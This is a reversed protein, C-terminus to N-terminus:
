RSITFEWWDIVSGIRIVCMDLLTTSYTQSNYIYVCFMISSPVGLIPDEPAQVLHSFVSGGTGGSTPSAYLSSLNDSDSGSNLHRLLAGIRRDSSSSSSFHTTKM